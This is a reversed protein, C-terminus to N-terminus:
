NWWSSPVLKRLVDWFGKNRRQFEATARKGVVESESFYENKATRDRARGANISERSMKGAWEVRGHRVWYHSMCPFSWNGVSPSLAVTEGDFHLKWDTPSFPTAVEKGCGCCCLHVATACPISVYIVGAKIDPPVFEVFEHELRYQKM